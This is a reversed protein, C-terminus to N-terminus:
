FSVLQGNDGKYYVQGAITDTTILTGELEAAVTRMADGVHVFQAIKSLGIIATITDRGNMFADGIIGGIEVEEEHEVEFTFTLTKTMTDPNPKMSFSHKM